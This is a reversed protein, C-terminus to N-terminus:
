HARAVTLTRSLCSLSTRLRERYGYPLNLLRTPQELPVGFRHAPERYLLAFALSDRSAPERSERTRIFPQASSAIRSQTLHAIGCIIPM